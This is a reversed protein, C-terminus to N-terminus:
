KLFFFNYKETGINPVIRKGGCMRHVRDALLEEVVILTLPHPLSFNCHRILEEVFNPRRIAAFSIVPIELTRDDM